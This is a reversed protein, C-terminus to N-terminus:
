GFKKAAFMLFKGNQHQVDKNNKKKFITSTSETSESFFDM